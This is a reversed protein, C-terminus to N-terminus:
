KILQVRSLHYSNKDSMSIGYMYKGSPSFTADMGPVVPMIDQQNAGDFEYLRLMGDRDSSVTYADIWRLKETVKAAGKLNTTTMKKLELDYVTFSAGKQSVIFRGNTYSSLYDSGEPITVTAVTKISSPSSADSRPLDGEFIELVDDHAIAIYHDGFYKDVVLQLPAKTDNYSRLTRAKAAGDDYYGVSRQKTKADVTTVYTITARDHLAFSAVNEILPGSLTSAGLDIRRLDGDVIAYLIRADRNSFMPNVAEVGLTATINRAPDSGEMDVVIWETNTKDYVHRVLLYRGSPDWTEFSFQQAKEKSPKTYANEPITIVTIEADDRGLDARHIQPTAPDEKIAMWKDDPSSLANSVTTFNAVTQQNLDTPILRAYNLWLVSGAALDISKQWKKYGDREMTIFHQGSALTTKSPTRTGFSVGDITVTAGDPQTDFQLLGGQEIKGDARDFRYGLMLFILVTVLGAVTVSMLSYVAIRQVLQRRKSPPHYM